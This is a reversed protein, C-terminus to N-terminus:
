DRMWRDIRRNLESDSSKKVDESIEKATKLDKVRQENQKATTVTKQDMRGKVYAGGLAALAVGLAILYIQFKSWINSLFTLVM